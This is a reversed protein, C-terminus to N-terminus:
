RGARAPAFRGVRRGPQLPPNPLQGALVVARHDSCAPSHVRGSRRLVAASIHTYQRYLGRPDAIGQPALYAPRLVGRIALVLAPLSLLAALTILSPYLGIIAAVIIAVAECAYLARRRATTEM